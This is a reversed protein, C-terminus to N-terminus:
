PGPSLWQSRFACDPIGRTPDLTADPGFGEKCPLASERQYCEPTRQKENSAAVPRQTVTGFLMTLLGM